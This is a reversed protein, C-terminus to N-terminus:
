RRKGLTLLTYIECLQAFDQAHVFKELGQISKHEGQERFESTTKRILVIGLQRILIGEAAHKLLELREAAERV